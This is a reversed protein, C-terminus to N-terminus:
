AAEAEVNPQTDPTPAAERPAADPSERRVTVVVAGVILAAGVATLATPREGLVLAGLAVAVLPNVYQHTVVQSIPAVRLLWAYATFAIVSGFVALYAWAAIPGPQLSDRTLDGWQGLLTALGTAFIGGALMEYVTAVFPDAPLTLRQSIFSGGSWSMTAFLMVVLSVAAAGGDLGGPVVILALGCLGVAAAAVTGRNVREGAVTRWLIVQLPVSGAIMAAVSSDIHQEVVHVLGVGIGLLMTGVVATGALERRSIRLSRGTIALVSALIASAALFRTGGALLPPLTRVALKIALYTSGWVVYVLGLAVWLQWRRPEVNV